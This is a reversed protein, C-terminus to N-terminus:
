YKFFPLLSLWLKRKQRQWHKRDNGRTRRIENNLYKLEIFFDNFFAALGYFLLILFFAAIAIILPTLTSDSM